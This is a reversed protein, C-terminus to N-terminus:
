ADDGECLQMSDGGMDEEELDFSSGSDPTEVRKRKQSWSPNRRPAPDAKWKGKTQDVTLIAKRILEAKRQSVLKDEIRKEYIASDGEGDQVKALYGFYLFCDRLSVTDETAKAGAHITSSVLFKRDSVRKFFWTGTYTTFYGYHCNHDTVIRVKAKSQHDMWLLVRDQVKYLHLRPHFLLNAIVQLIHYHFM